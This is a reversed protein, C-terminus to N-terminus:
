RGYMSGWITRNNTGKLIKRQNTVRRTPKKIQMNYADLPKRFRGVIMENEYVYFM